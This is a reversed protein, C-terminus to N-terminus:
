TPIEDNKYNVFFNLKEPLKWTFSTEINFRFFLKLTNLEHFVSNFQSAM